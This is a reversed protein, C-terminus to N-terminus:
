SNVLDATEGQKLGKTNLTIGYEMWAKLNALWFTWGNSCGVFFDKKAREDTPIDQQTLIIETGSDTPKFSLSVNGGSGFTFAILDVGNANLITGNEEFEWNHWKWSFKDGKAVFKNSPKLHSANDWYDAKELFWSEIGDQTAWAAYVAEMPKQITIRKRFRTWDIPSQEM